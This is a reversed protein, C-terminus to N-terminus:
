GRREAYGAKLIIASDARVTKELVLVVHGEGIIPFRYSRASLSPEKLCHVKPSDKM